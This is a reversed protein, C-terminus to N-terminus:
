VTLQKQLYYPFDIGLSVSDLVKKSIFKDSSLVYDVHGSPM